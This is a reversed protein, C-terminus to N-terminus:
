PADVHRAASLAIGAVWTLYSPRQRVHRGVRAVDDDHTAWAWPHTQEGDDNLQSSHVSTSTRSTPKVRPKRM